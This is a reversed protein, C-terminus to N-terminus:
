CLYTKVGFILLLHNSSWLKMMEWGFGKLYFARPKRYSKSYNTNNARLTFRGENEGWGMYQVDPWFLIIMHVMAHIKRWKEGDQIDYMWDLKYPWHCSKYCTQIKCTWVAGHIWVSQWYTKQFKALNKQLRSGGDAIIQMSPLQWVEPLNTLLFHVYDAIALCRAFMWLKLAETRLKSSIHLVTCCPSADKAVLSGQAITPITPHM